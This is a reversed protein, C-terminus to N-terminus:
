FVKQSCLLSQSNKVYEHIKKGYSENETKSVDTKGSIECLNKLNIFGQERAYKNHKKNEELLKERNLGSLEEELSLEIKINELSNTDFIIWEGTAFTTMFIKDGVPCASYVERDISFTTIEKSVRQVRYILREVSSFYYIYDKVRCIDKVGDIEELESLDGLNLDYYSIYGKKNPRMWLVEEENIVKSFGEASNSKLPIYNYTLDNLSVCLMGKGDASLCYISEKCVCGGTILYELRESKKERLENVWNEIYTIKETVTNLQVISYVRSGVLYVNNKHVTINAFKKGVGRIDERLLLTSFQASKKDYVAINEANYPCFYLKGDCEAIGWFLRYGEAKEGPFQGMYQVKYTEPEIRFLGNFERAAGWLYEGDFYLVDTTLRARYDTINANQELLPKGTKQYLLVLSSYDGYYADSLAFAAHFDPTDDYIGWGARRYIDVIEKYREWLDPRMSEITAKVLPHPRWLLVYEEKKEYFFQLVSQIKRIMQENYKLLAGLSTNYFVVKKRSGDPKITMRKWEEPMHLVDRDTDFIRDYKPSGLGLVKKEWYNRDLGCYKQLTNIMGQRFKESQLIVKDAYLVGNTIYRSYYDITEDSDPNEREEYVCYPIYVLCDTHEKLKSAYFQPAVSTVYNNEDYPNHIYLIDPKRKELDYAAYHIIPVDKPFDEGEYHFAGFSRDTNRDYYPIPVVYAECDPDEDAVKWVSELSDWMSAKYPMFVIEYTTKIDNKLCNEIRLMSRRLKKYIKDANIAQGGGIEEYVSYLLECYDELLSIIRIGPKETKEIFDGLELAGEQCQGLLEKVSAYEKNSLFKKIEEHALALLEIFKEAQSKHTRRM